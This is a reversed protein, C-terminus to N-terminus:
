IRQPLDSKPFPRNDTSRTPLYAPEPAATPAEFGVLIAPMVSASIPAPINWDDRMFLFGCTDLECSDEDACCEMSDCVCEHVAVGADCLLPTAIFGCILTLMFTVRRLLM